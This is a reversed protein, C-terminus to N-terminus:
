HRHAQDRMTTLGQLEVALSPTQLTSQSATRPKCTRRLREYREPASSYSQAQTQRSQHSLSRAAPEAQRHSDSTEASRRTHHNGLAVRKKPAVTSPGDVSASSSRRRKRPHSDLLEPTTHEVLLEVSDFSQSIYMDEWTASCPLARAPSGPSPSRSSSRPTSLQDSAQSLSSSRSSAASSREVDTSFIKAVWSGAIDEELYRTMRSIAACVEPRFEEGSEYRSLLASMGERTNGAWAKKVHSWGTRRRWNTFQTDINRIPVGLKAAFHRRLSLSPYPHALNTMFWAKLHRPEDDDKVCDNDSDLATGSSTELDTDLIAQLRHVTDQFAKAMVTAVLVNTDVTSSM